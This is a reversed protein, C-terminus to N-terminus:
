SNNTFRGANLAEVYGQWVHKMAQHVYATDHKDSCYVLLTKGDASIDLMCHQLAPDSEILKNARRIATLQEFADNKNVKFYNDSNSMYTRESEAADRDM